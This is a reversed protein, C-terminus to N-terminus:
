PSCEAILPHRMARTKAVQYLIMMVFLILLGLALDAQITTSVRDASWSTFYYFVTVIVLNHVIKGALLPLAMQKIGYRVLALPIIVTDDPLPSVAYVFLLLPVMRPHANVMRKVWQLLSSRELTPNGGLLKLTISYSVLEGVVAGLGSAVGMLLMRDLSAGGLALSLLPVTYPIHALLTANGIVAVIFIGVFGLGSMLDFLDAIITDLGSLAQTRDLAILGELLALAILGYKIEIRYKTLM